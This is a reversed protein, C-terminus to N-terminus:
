RWSVKSQQTLRFFKAREEKPSLLSSRVSSGARESLRRKEKEKIGVQNELYEVEHLRKKL